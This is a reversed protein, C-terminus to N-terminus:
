HLSGHVGASLIIYRLFFVGIIHLVGEILLFSVIGAGLSVLGLLVLPVILGLGLLGIYFHYQLSGRTLLNVSDRCAGPLAIWTLGSILILEFIVLVLGLNKLSPLWPLGQWNLPLLYLVGFGGMLASVLFLAPIYASNWFTISRMSGLVFGPYAAVFLAALGALLGLAMMWRPGTMWPSGLSFWGAPGNALIAVHLFGLVIFSTIGIVGRSVWSSQPRAVMRWAARYRSLDALLFLSGAGVLIVGLAMGLTFGAPLALLFLGSGTGTLFLAGIVLGGWEQQQRTGLVFEREEM